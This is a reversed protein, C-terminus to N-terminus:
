DCPVPTGPATPGQSLGGSLQEYTVASTAHVGVSNGQPVAVALPFSGTCKIGIKPASPASVVVKLPGQSCDGRIYVHQSGGYSVHLEAGSEDIPGAGAGDLSVVGAGGVTFQVSGCLAIAADGSVCLSDVAYSGGGLSAVGGELVYDGTPAPGGCFGGVCQSPGCAAGVCPAGDEGPIAFCDGDQCLDDTCPDDDECVVLEGTCAGEVCADDLTCADGDDCLGDLADHVCGVAADCSDATCPEQDDCELPSGVCEGDACVDDATCADGDDCGGPQPAHACGDVPDCSDVTCDNDDQCELPTQVCEGAVCGGISCADAPPCDLPTNACGTAGCDDVTCPDDDDCGAPAGGGCAANACIEGVTCPDGDDCPANEDAQGDCNQDLGDCREAEPIAADCGIWGQEADCTEFGFCEGHENKASCPRTAGPGEPFCPDVRQEVEADDDGFDPIGVPVDTGGGSASSVAPDSCAGLLLVLGVIRM